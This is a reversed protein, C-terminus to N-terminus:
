KIEVFPEPGYWVWRGNAGAGGERKRLDPGLKNHAARLTKPGFGVAQAEALVEAAPVPGNALRAELWMAAQDLKGRPEPHEKKMVIDGADMESEGLWNVVGIDPDAASPDVRFSLSAPAPGMQPKAQAVVREGENEPHNGVFLASRATAGIGISGSIRYLLAGADATKNLHVVVVVAVKLRMAMEVLPQLAQRVHQDKHSDLRVPVCANLPDLVVMSVNGVQKIYDELLHVDDPLQPPRGGHLIDLVVVKSLDAGAAGARPRLTDAQGDEANLLLVRAPPRITPDGPLPVGRSLRAALDLTMISKGLGPDGAVLTLHGLAIYGKWLWDIKEPKVEALPILKLGGGDLGRITAAGTLIAFDDAATPRNGAEWGADQAMQLLTGLGVGGKQFSRWKEEPEGPHYKEGDRCWALWVQRGAAGLGARLAMGVRLWDVYPMDPDLHSLASIIEEAREPEPAEIPTEEPGSHGLAEAVRNVRSQIAGLQAASIRLGTVTSYRGSSYAELGAGEVKISHKAVLPLVALGFVHIGTGSPSIEAYTEGSAGAMLSQLEVPGTWKGDAIVHDLDIFTMGESGDFVFGVGALPDALTQEYFRKAEEFSGWTSSDNVKAALGTVISIPKKNRHGVWHPVARMGFPINKHWETVPLKKIPM